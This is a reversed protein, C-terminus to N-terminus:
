RTWKKVSFNDHAMLIINFLNPFIVKGTNQLEKRIETCMQQNGGQIGFLSGDFGALSVSTVLGNTLTLSQNSYNNLM